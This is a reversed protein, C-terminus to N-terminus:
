KSLLYNIVVRSYRISTPYPIITNPPYKRSFYYVYPISYVYQTSFKLFIYYKAPSQNIKKENKLSSISFYEINTWIGSGLAGLKVNKTLIEDDALSKCNQLFFQTLILLHLTHFLLM